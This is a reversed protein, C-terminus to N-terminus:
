KKLLRLIKEAMPPQPLNQEALWRGIAEPKAGLRKALTIVDTGAAVAEKLARSARLRMEAAETATMPNPM